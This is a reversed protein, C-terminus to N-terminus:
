RIKVSPLGPVCPNEFKAIIFIICINLFVYIILIKNKYHEDNLHMYDM